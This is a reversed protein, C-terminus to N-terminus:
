SSVWSTFNSLVKSPTFGLALTTSSASFSPSFRFICACPASIRFPSKTSACSFSSSALAHKAHHSQDKVFAPILIIWFSISLAVIFVSASAAMSVAKSFNLAPSVATHTLSISSATTLNLFPPALMALAAKLLWHMKSPMLALSPICSTALDISASSQFSAMSLIIGTTFLQLTTAPILATLLVEIPFKM